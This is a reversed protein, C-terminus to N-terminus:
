GFNELSNMNRYAHKLKRQMHWNGNQKRCCMHSFKPNSYVSLTFRLRCKIDSRGENRTICQFNFRYSYFRAFSPHNYLILCVIDFQPSFTRRHNVEREPKRPGRALNSKQFNTKKGWVKWPHAVRGGRTVGSSMLLKCPMAMPIPQTPYPPPPTAKNACWCWIRAQRVASPRMHSSRCWFSNSGLNQPM